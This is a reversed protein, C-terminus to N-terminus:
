MDQQRCMDAYIGNKAILEQHNGYEAIRGDSVVAIFDVDKISSLRHAITVTTRGVAAKDIARQVEVESTSDLASTAEDLLLLKPKRILARAIAIRQKQGGSLHGGKAGVKTDYGKPMRCVFTDVDAQKAAEVVEERTVPNECGWAINDAISMDFLIPEQGVLAAHARLGRLVQYEAIPINNIKASGAMPDYWRQLLGIITSKGCGSPGVLALSTGEVGELNFHGVFTPDMATPYQFVLKEFKFGAHFEASEQGSHDPDIETRRDLLQFATKAAFKGKSFSNTAAASNGMSIMTVMMCLSTSIVKDVTVRRDAFLIGGAYFGISLTLMASIAQLADACSTMFANRKTLKFPELLFADYRDVAFKEKQIAKITKVERIAESASQQAQEFAEKSSDAFCANSATQWYTAYLIIPAPVLLIGMLLTSFASSILIGGLGTMGLEAISGVTDTVLHSVGAIAGLKYCLVGPANNKADFFGMEQRLLNNFVLVRLRQTFRANTRGMRSNKGWRAGFAMIAAIVMFLIYQNASQRKNVKGITLGTVIAFGPMVLGGIMSAFIGLILSKKEYKMMGYVRQVAKTGAEEAEQKSRLKEEAIRLKTQKVIVDPPDMELPPQKLLERVQPNPQYGPTEEKEVEDRKQSGQGALGVSLKQKNVLQTYVGDKAYLEDHNGKEIVEGRHMVYIVDANRVTSLRHAIVITTRGKSAADLAKQVLRESKTDLASTAEDLLLIKPQKILARAIAIRQKQGGSLLGSTVMTDYGLPFKCVFDHCQAMKCIAIFKEPEIQVGTPLGLLINQKVTLAFLVPEQGVIGIHRRLVNMDMDRIDQGDLLIRGGSPEYFRQLLAITTSKGSGSGGVFAVTQGVKVEASMNNLIQVEPRAPYSFYINHFSISGKISTPEAKPKDIETEENNTPHNLIAHYVPRAAAKASAFTSLCDPVDMLGMAVIMLALVAVCAYGPEVERKLVMRAALWFGFAFILFITFHFLGMAIGLLNGKKADVECVNGMTEDYKEVFRKQLSFAYVTRIGSLAQEAVTNAQAFVTASRTTMISEIRVILVACVILLILCVLVVLALKWAHYFAMVLSALIAWFAAMLNGANEGIATRILGVDYMLRATPSEDEGTDFWAMDQRLISDLYLSSIKKAQKEATFVWLSRSVYTSVFTIAALAGYAQACYNLVASAEDDTTFLQGFLAIAAPNVLGKCVSAFLAIFILLLDFGTAFKWLSFVSVDPQRQTKHNLLPPLDDSIATPQDNPVDVVVSETPYVKPKRPMDLAYDCM